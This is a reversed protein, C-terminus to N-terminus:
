SIETDLSHSYSCRTEGSAGGSVASAGRKRSRRGRVGTQHRQALADPRHLASERIAPHSLFNKKRIPVIRNAVERAKEARVRTVKQEHLFYGFVRMPFPGKRRPGEGIYGVGVVVCLPCRGRQFGGLM